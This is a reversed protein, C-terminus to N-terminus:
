VENMAVFDSMPCLYVNAMTVANLSVGAAELVASLNKMVQETQEKVGGSVMEGAPTLGVQGACFVLDGSVVAQSYPGIAKPAKDTQVTKM